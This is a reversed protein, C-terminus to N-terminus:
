RVEVETDAVAPPANQEWFGRLWAAWDRPTKPVDARHDDTVNVAARSVDAGYLVVRRPAGHVTAATEIRTEPSV